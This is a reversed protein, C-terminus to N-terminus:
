VKIWKKKVIDWSAIVKGNEVKKKFPTGDPSTWTGEGHEKGDKWGGNYAHFNWRPRGGEENWRGQGHPKGNKVEGVYKGNKFKITEKKMVVMQVCNSLLTM